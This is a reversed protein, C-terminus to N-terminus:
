PRQVEWSMVFDVMMSAMVNTVTVGLSTCVGLLLFNWYASKAFKTEM